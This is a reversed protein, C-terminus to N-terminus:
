RVRRFLPRLAMWLGVGTGATLVVLVVLLLPSDLPGGEIQVNVYGSCTTADDLHEGVVQFSIGSPVLDPLDYEEVGQNATEQTSGEWSDITVQGFPPPLDVAIAGAYDGPPEEVSGAWSVSDSRPVVVTADGVSRVDVTFPGNAETGRRFEGSGECGGELEAGAVGTASGLGVLVLTAIVALRAKV